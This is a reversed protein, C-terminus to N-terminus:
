LKMNGQVNIKKQAGGAFDLSVSNGIRRAESAPHGFTDRAAFRTWQGVTGITGGGQISGRGGARRVEEEEALFQGIPWNPAPNFDQGVPLILRPM